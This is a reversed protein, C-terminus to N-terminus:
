MKRFAEKVSRGDELKWFTWGSRRVGSVAEAASSLSPYAQGVGEFLPVVSYRLEEVMLVHDVGKSTGMLMLGIPLGDKNPNIVETFADHNDTIPEGVLQLQAMLTAMTEIKAELVDMREEVTTPDTVLVGAYRKVVGDGLKVKEGM